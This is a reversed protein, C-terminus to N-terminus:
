DSFLERDIDIIPPNKGEKPEVFWEEARIPAVRYTGLDVVFEEYAGWQGCITCAWAFLRNDKIVMHRLPFSLVKSCGSSVDYISTWTGTRRDLLLVVGEADCNWVGHVQVVRWAERDADSAYVAGEIRAIGDLAKLWKHVAAPQVVRTPLEAVRRPDLKGGARLLKAVRRLHLERGVRLDSMADHFLKRGKKRDQWRCSGDAAVLPELAPGEFQLDGWVEDYDRVPNGTAPDVSWIEAYSLYAGSIAYLLAHDRGSVPHRCTTVFRVLCHRTWGLCTGAESRVWHGPCRYDGDPRVSLFLTPRDQAQPEALPRWDLTGPDIDYRCEAEYPSAQTGAGALVLVVLISVVFRVASSCFRGSRVRALVQKVAVSRQSHAQAPVSASATMPMACAVAVPPPMARRRAARAFSARARMMM